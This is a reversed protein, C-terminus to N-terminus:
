AVKRIMINFYGVPIEADMAEFAVVVRQQEEETLSHLIRDPGNLEEGAFYMQTVLEHYGRKAVKFHIHPPRWWDASAPYAGPIITKFAFAGDADTRLQGWGQFNPDEPAPNPDAEHRYRGHHNAQWLDVLAGAVPLLSEDIVQGKVYVVEGLAAGSRGEIITPDIDKDPQDRTPFFPGERQQPTACEESTQNGPVVAGVVTAAAAGLGVQIATRRSM